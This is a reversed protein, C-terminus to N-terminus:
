KGSIEDLMSQLTKLEDRKNNEWDSLMQELKSEITSVIKEAAPLWDLMSMDENDIFIQDRSSMYGLNKSESKLWINLRYISEGSMTETSYAWFPKIDFQLNVFKKRLGRDPFMELYKNSIFRFNWSDFTLLSYLVEKKRKQITDEIVEEKEKMKMYRYSSYNTHLKQLERRAPSLM